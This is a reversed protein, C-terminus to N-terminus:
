IELASFLLNFYTSKNLPNISFALIASFSIKDPMWELLAPKEGLCAEPNELDSKLGAEDRPLEEKVRSLCRLIRISHRMSHRSLTKLRYQIFGSVKIIKSTILKDISNVTMGKSGSNNEEDRYFM